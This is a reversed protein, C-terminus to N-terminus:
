MRHAKTQRTNVTEKQTLPAVEINLIDDDIAFM